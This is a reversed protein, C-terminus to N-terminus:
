PSGPPTKALRELAARAETTLRAEPSGAALGKLVDAAAPTALRELLEVARLTRLAEPTRAEGADQGLLRELRRRQERSPRAALAERLAPVAAAGLTELEGEARERVGFRDDDMDTILRAVQGADAPALRQRALRVAETPWGALGALARGAVAADRDGLEEWLEGAPRSAEASPAAPPLRSLDWVLATADDGSSVLSRGDPTFAVALVRGSHGCLPGRPRGTVVDWLLVEGGDGGSAVLRGDPSVALGKGGRWRCREQGSALEWLRVTGEDDLSALLRGDPTFSVQSVPRDGARWDRSVKGTAVDWLRLDGRSPLEVPPRRLGLGGRYGGGTALTAGDPSFAVCRQDEGGLFHRGGDWVRVAQGEVTFALSGGPAFAVGGVCPDAPRTDDHPGLAALRTLLTGREGDLIPVAFRDGACALKRGDPSFGLGLLNRQRDMAQVTALPEGTPLAWFRVEGDATGSAVRRGDPSCALRLLPEGPMGAACRERGTELDWLRVAASRGWSALTKGDPSFALECSGGWGVEAGGDEIRLVVRAEALDWLLVARDQYAVALCKGDPAFALGAPRPRRNEEPRALEGVWKRKGTDYLRVTDATVVALRDGAPAFALRGVRFEEFGVEGPRELMLEGLDAGVDSTHCSLYRNGAAALLVLGDPSFALGGVRRVGAQRQWALRGPGTECVRVWGTSDGVALRSGDPAFALSWHGAADKFTFNRLVEGSGVDCLLVRCEDLGTIWALALTDGDPSFVAADSYRLPSAFRRRAIEKGTAVDWTRFTDDGGFSVLTRGDDSFRAAYVGRAHRLRVTGLRAVAGEPLPDGFRDAPVTREEPPGGGRDPLHGARSASVCVLLGALVLTVSGRVM